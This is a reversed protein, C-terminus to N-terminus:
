AQLKNAKIINRIQKKDLKDSSIVCGFDSTNKTDPHQYIHLGFKYKLVHELIEIYSMPGGAIIEQNM